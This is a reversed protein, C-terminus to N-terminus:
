DAMHDGDTRSVGSWRGDRRRHPVADGKTGPDSRILPRAVGVDGGIDAM